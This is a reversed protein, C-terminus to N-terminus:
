KSHCSTLCYIYIDCRLVELMINAGLKQSVTRSNYSERAKTIKGPKKVHSRVKKKEPFAGSSCHAM